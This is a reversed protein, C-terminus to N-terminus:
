WNNNYNHISNNAEIMLTHPSVSPVISAEIEMINECTSKRQHVTFLNMSLRMLEPSKAEKGAIILDLFAIM